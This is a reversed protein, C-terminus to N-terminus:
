FSTPIEALLRRGEGATGWFRTVRGSTEAVRALNADCCAFVAGDAPDFAVDPMRKLIRGDSALVEIELARVGALNLPIRVVVLEAEPSIEPPPTTVDGLDYYVARSGSARVRAAEQATLWLDLTGRPVLQRVMSALDDRFRLEDADGELARAFLDEEYAEVDAAGDVDRGRVYDDLRAVAADLGVRTM